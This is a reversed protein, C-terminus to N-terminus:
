DDALLDFIQFLRIVSKLWAIKFYRVNSRKRDAFCSKARIAVEIGM